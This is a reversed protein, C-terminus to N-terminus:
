GLECGVDTTRTVANVGFHVGKMEKCRRPCHTSYHTDVYVGQSRKGAEREIWYHVGRCQM